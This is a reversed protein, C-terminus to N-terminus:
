CVVLQGVQDTGAALEVIGALVVERSELQDFVLETGTVDLGSADVVVETDQEALGGAIGRIRCQHGNGDRVQFRRAPDGRLPALVDLAQGTDQFFPAAIVPCDTVQGPM